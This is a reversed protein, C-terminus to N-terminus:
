ERAWLDRIDSLSMLEKDEPFVAFERADISLREGTLAKSRIIGSVAVRREFAALVDSLRILMNDFHCRVQRGILSDYVFFRRKGHTIVGELTGEVTGVSEVVPGFIQDVSAVVDSTVDVASGIGNSVALRRQKTPDSLAALKRAIALTDNSFYEPQHRHKALDDFGSVVAHSVHETVVPAIKDNVPSPDAVVQLPSALSISKIVWRIGKRRGTAETSVSEVLQSWLSSIQSLNDLTIEPWDVTLTLRRSTTKETM